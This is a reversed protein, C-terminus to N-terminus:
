KIEKRPLIVIRNAIARRHRVTEASDSM